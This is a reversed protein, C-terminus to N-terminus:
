ELAEKAANESISLTQSKNSSLNLMRHSAAYKNLQQHSLFAKEVKIEASNAINNRESVDESSPDKHILTQKQKLFNDVQFITQQRQMKKTARLDGERDDIQLNSQLKETVSVGFHDGFTQSEPYKKLSIKDNSLPSTQIDPTEAM